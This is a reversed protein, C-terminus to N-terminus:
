KKHCEAERRPKHDQERHSGAYLLLGFVVLGVLSETAM